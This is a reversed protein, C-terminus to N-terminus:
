KDILNKLGELDFGLSFRLTGDLPNNGVVGIVYGASLEFM